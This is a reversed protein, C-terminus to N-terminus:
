PQTAGGGITPLVEAGGRKWSAARLRWSSDRRDDGRLPFCFYAVIIMACQLKLSLARRDGIMQDGAEVAGRRIGM